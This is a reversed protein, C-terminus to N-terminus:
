LMANVFEAYCEEDSFHRRIAALGRAALVRRSGGDGALDLVADAFRDPEDAICVCDRLTDSVGQLTVATAVVAKGHALAEILKIKLGSGARLPSILLGCEAYLSTLNDVLGLLQVGGPARGM